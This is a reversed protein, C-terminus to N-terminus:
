VISTIIGNTVTVTLPPADATTFTGSAGDTIDASTHTHGTDSKGALATDVEGTSYVDLCTRSASPTTSVFNTGNGVLFNCNTAGGGIRYGVSTNIYGTVSVQQSSDIITSGGIAYSGAACGANASAGGVKFGVGAATRVETSATAELVGSTPCYLSASTWLIRGFTNLGDIKIAAANSSNLIAPSQDLNEIYIGYGTTVAGPTADGKVPTNVVLGYWATVTTNQGFEANAQLNFAKDVTYTGSAPKQFYLEAVVGKMQGTIQQTNGETVEVVGGVGFFDWAGDATTRKNRVVFNAGRVENDPNTFTKDGKALVYGASTDNNVSTGGVALHENIRVNAFSKIPRLFPVTANIFEWESDGSERERQQSEAVQVELKLHNLAETVEWAWRNFRGLDTISTGGSPAAFNNLRLLSVGHVKTPM